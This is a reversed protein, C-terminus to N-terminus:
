VGDVNRVTVRVTANETSYDNSPGYMVLYSKDKSRMHYEDDAYWLDGFQSSGTGWKKTSFDDSMSSPLGSSANKNAGSSNTGNASSRNTNKNAITNANSNSRTTNSESSLAGIVILVM